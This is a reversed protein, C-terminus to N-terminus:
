GAKFGEPTYGFSEDYLRRYEPMLTDRGEKRVKRQENTWDRQYEFEDRALSRQEKAGKRGM